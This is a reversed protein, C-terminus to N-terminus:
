RCDRRSIEGGPQVTDCLVAGNLEAPDLDIRSLDLGSLDAGNLDCIRAGPLNEFVAYVAGDALRFAHGTGILDRVMKGTFGDALQKESYCSGSEARATGAACLAFLGSLLIKAATKMARDYCARALVLEKV